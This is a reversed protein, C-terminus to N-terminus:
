NFLFFSVLYYVAFPMVVGAVLLDAFALSVIFYNTVSRLSKEKFVALIVLLNGFVASLPLVVLSLGWYVKEQKAPEISSRNLTTQQQNVFSQNSKNASDDPSSEDLVLYDVDLQHHNAQHLLSSFRQTDPPYHPTKHSILDSSNVKRFYNLDDSGNPPNYNTIELNPQVNISNENFVEDNSANNLDDFILDITLQDPTLVYTMYNTSSNLPINDIQNEKNLHSSNTRNLEILFRNENPVYFPQADDNLLDSVLNLGSQNLQKDDKYIQVNKYDLNNNAFKSAHQGFPTNNTDFNSNSNSFKALNLKFNTKNNVNNSPSENRNANRVSVRENPEFQQLIQTFNTSVVIANTLNSYLVLQIFLVVTLMQGTM